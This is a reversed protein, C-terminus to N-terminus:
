KKSSPVRSWQIFADREISSLFTIGEFWTFPLKPEYNFAISALVDYTAKEDWLIAWNAFIEDVLRAGSIKTIGDNIHQKGLITYIEIASDWLMDDKKISCGTSDEYLNFRAFFSQLHESIYIPRTELARIGRSMSQKIEWEDLKGKAYFQLIFAAETRFPETIPLFHNKVALNILEGNKMGYTKTATTILNDCESDSSFFRNM